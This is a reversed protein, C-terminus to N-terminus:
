LTLFRVEIGQREVLLLALGPETGGRPQSPSGPCLVRRGEVAELRPKHTHGHVVLEVEEPFRALVARPRELAVDWGHFLGIRRGEAEVVRSHPLPLGRDCNGLVAQVPAIRELRELVFPEEVDGAHLILDVGQLSHDLQELYQDERHWHTDSVVGIRVSRAEDRLPERRPPLEM